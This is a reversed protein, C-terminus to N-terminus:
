LELVTLTILPPDLETVAVIDTPEVGSPISLAVILTVGLIEIVLQGDDTCTPFLKETEAEADWGYPEIDLICTVNL